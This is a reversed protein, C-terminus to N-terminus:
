ILVNRGNVFTWLNSYNAQFTIKYLISVYDVSTSSTIDTTVLFWTQEMFQNEVNDLPIFIGYVADTMIGEAPIIEFSNRNTGVQQVRYQPEAFWIMLGNKSYSTRFNTIYRIRTINNSEITYKDPNGRLMNALSNTTGARNVQNIIRSMARDHQPEDRNFLEKSHTQNMYVIREVNSYALPLGYEVKKNIMVLVTTSLGITVLGVFCVAWIIVMKPTIRKLFKPMKM